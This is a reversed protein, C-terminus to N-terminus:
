LGPLTVRTEAGPQVTLVIPSALPEDQAGHGREEDSPSYVCTLEWTGPLVRRITCSTQGSARLPLPVIDRSKPTTGRLMFLVWGGGAHELPRTWEVIVTGLAPVVVRAEDSDSDHLQEFVRGCVRTSIRFPEDSRTNSEFRGEGLSVVSASSLETSVSVEAEPVAEGREDVVTIVVRRGFQMVLEIASGDEPVVFDEIELTAFGPHSARLTGYPEPCSLVFEGREDTQVRCGENLKVFAGVIPHKEPDVVVGRFPKWTEGLAVVVSRREGEGLPELTREYHVPKGTKGTVRLVIEHGPRLAKFTVAGREDPRAAAVLMGLSPDIKQPALSHRLVHDGARDFGLGKPNRELFLGADCQLSVRFLAFDGGSPATLQVDLRNAATLVLALPDPLPEPLDVTEPLFGDAVVRLERELPPVHPVVSRGEGDTPASKVGAITAVGGAIPAGLPDHLTFRVDRTPPVLVDGLDYDSPIEEGVLRLFREAAATAGVALDIRVVDNRDLSREFRGGDDTTLFLEGEFDLERYAFGARLTLKAVPARTSADLARGRLVPSPVVVIRLDDVARELTLDRSATSIAGASASEIRIVRWCRLTGSWPVPLGHFEFSGNSATRTAVRLRDLPQIGLANWAVEPIAERPPLPHDSDLLLELKPMPTGDTAVVVGAVREGTPLELVHTGPTLALSEAILPYGAASVVLLTDVGDAEVSLRGNADTQERWVLDEGRCALVTADSVAAGDAERVELEALAAEHLASTAESTKRAEERALSAGGAFEAARAGSEEATPATPTADSADGSKWVFPALVAISVVLALWAFLWRRSRTV